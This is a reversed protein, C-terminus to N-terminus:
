HSAEHPDARPAQFICSLNQLETISVKLLNVIGTGTQVEM